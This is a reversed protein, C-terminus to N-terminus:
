SRKAAIESLKTAIIANEIRLCPIDFLKPYVTLAEPSFMFDGKDLLPTKYKPCALIPTASDLEQANEKEIITIATPNVDRASLPFLEHRVVKYGLDACHQKIDRVYGLRTMREKGESSAFEYGPELLVLYKGTVRYLEQLIPVENGGNPEMSHSTYVVDISNNAYPMNFLSGTCLSVNEIDNQALWNQAYAIRSWSIDFGHYSCQNSPLSEIVGSLTTAEGIGAELLSNPEYLDQIIKSLVDAFEHKYERFSADEMQKIYSGSQLDYSVEIIEESNVSSNTHAKLFSTINEGKEYLEKLFTPTIIETM